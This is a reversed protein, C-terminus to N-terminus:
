MRVPLDGLVRHAGTLAAMAASQSVSERYCRHVVGRWPFADLCLECVAGGRLFTGPLCLLRYNHLTQVVPVGARGGSVYLSPSVMAFTNHAHVVDPRFCKILRTLERATRTSWVATAKAAAVARM